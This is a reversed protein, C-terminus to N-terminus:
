FSAEKRIFLQVDFSVPGIVDIYDKLHQYCSSAVRTLLALSTVRIDIDTSEAAECIARV